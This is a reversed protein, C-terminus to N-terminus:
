FMEEYERRAAAHQWNEYWEHAADANDTETKINEKQQGDEADSSLAGEEADAPGDDDSLAGDSEEDDAPGFPQISRGRAELWQRMSDKRSTGLIRPFFVHGHIRTKTQLRGYNNRLAVCAWHVFHGLEVWGHSSTRYSLGLLARDDDDNGLDPIGENNDGWHCLAEFHTEWSLDDREPWRFHPLEDCLRKQEVSLQRGNRARYGEHQQEVWRLLNRAKRQLRNRALTRLTELRDWDREPELWWAKLEEFKEMWPDDAAKWRWGPLALLKSARQESLSGARYLCRQNNVWVACQREGESEATRQPYQRPDQQAALWTRLANFKSHWGGWTWGPLHELLAQRSQPLKDKQFAARQHKIWRALQSCSKKGRPPYVNEHQQLWQRLKELNATWADKQKVASPRKLVMNRSHKAIAVGAPLLHGAPQQSRRSQRRVM